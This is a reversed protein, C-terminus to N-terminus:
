GGLPGPAAQWSRHDPSTYVGEPCLPLRQKLLHVEGRNPIFLHCNPFLVSLSSNYPVVIRREAQGSEMPSLGLTTGQSVSRKILSVGNEQAKTKANFDWYRLNPQVSSFVDSDLVTPTRGTLM